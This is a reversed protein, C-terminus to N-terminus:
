DQQRLSSAIPLYKRRRRTERASLEEPSYLTAHRAGAVFNAKNQIKL